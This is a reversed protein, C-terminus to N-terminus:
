RTYRASVLQESAHGLWFQGLDLTNSWAFYMTRGWVCNGADDRLLWECFCVPLWQALSLLSEQWSVWRVDRIEWDALSFFETAAADNAGGGSGGRAPLSRGALSRERSPHM